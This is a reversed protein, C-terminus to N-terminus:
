SKTEGLLTNVVKTVARDLQKEAHARLNARAEQNAKLQEERIINAEQVKSAYLQQAEQEADAKGNAILKESEQHALTTTKKAKDQAESSIQDAKAEIKKLEDWVQEM